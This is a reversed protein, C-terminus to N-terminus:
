NRASRACERVHKSCGLVKNHSEGHLPASTGGDCLTVLAWDEKEVMKVRAIGLKNRSINTGGRLEQPMIKLYIMILEIEKGM